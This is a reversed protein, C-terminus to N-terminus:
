RRWSEVRVAENPDVRAGVAYQAVIRVGNDIRVADIEIRSLAVRISRKSAVFAVYRGYSQDFEIVPTALVDIGAVSMSRARGASDWALQVAQAPSALCVLGDPFPVHRHMRAIKAAAAAVLGPELPDEDKVTMPESNRKMEVTGALRSKDTKLLDAYAAEEVGLTIESYISDVIGQLLGEPAGKLARHDISHVLTCTKVDMEVPSCTMHSAKPAPTGVVIHVSDEGHVGATGVSAHDLISRRPRPAISAADVVWVRNGRQHQMKGYADEGVTSAIEEWHFASYRKLSRTMIRCIGAWDPMGEPGM